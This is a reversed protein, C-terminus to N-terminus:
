HNVEGSLLAQLMAVARYKRRRALRLKAADAAAPGSFYGLIDPLRRIVGRGGWGGDAVENPFVWVRPAVDEFTGGEARVVAETVEKVLSALVEDNEYQGEPVSPIFRYRTRHVPVGAAYVQPRHLFLVSVAQVRENAPDIDKEHRLLIETVEKILRAEAEPELAGQPIFADIM